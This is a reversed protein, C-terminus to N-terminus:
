KISECHKRKPSLVQKRVVVIDRQLFSLVLSKPKFCTTTKQHFKYYIVINKM